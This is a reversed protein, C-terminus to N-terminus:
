RQDDAVEHMQFELEREHAPHQDQRNYGTEDDHIEEEKRIRVPNDLNPHLLTNCIARFEHSAATRRSANLLAGPHACLQAIHLAVAWAVGFSPWRAILRAMTMISTGGSPIMDRPIPKANRYPLCRSRSFWRLGSQIAWGKNTPERCILRSRM